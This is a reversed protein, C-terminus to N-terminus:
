ALWAYLLLLASCASPSRASILKSKDRTGARVIVRGFGRAGDTAEDVGANIGREDFGKTLIGLLKRPRRRARVLGDWFYRDMWTPHERRPGRSPSSRGTTSSM